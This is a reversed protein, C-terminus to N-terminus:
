SVGQPKVKLQEAALVPQPKSAQLFGVFMVIVGFLIGLYLFGTLHLDNLTGGLVPFLAGAAILINGTLRNLLIRKRWFLFASYLAGGVLTITGYLNFPLAFGLAAVDPVIYVTKGATDVAKGSLLGGNNVAATMNDYYPQKFTATLMVYVAAISAIILIAALTNAIVKRRVLLYVTGQGLWASTLIAGSLYWWRFALDHTSDGAQWGGASLYAQTFVGIGYLLLGIGWFLLYPQQRRSWRAFVMAAFIVTVVLAILSIILNFNM